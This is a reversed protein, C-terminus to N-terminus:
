RVPETPHSQRVSREHWLGSIRGAAVSTRRVYKMLSRPSPQGNPRLLAAGHPVRGDHGDPVGHRKLVQSMGVGYLYHQRLLAALGSRHRYHVVADPVWRLAIGARSLSWSFAIDECRVLSEDFGGAREFADRTVAMNASVLYPVGLFSPLEGPTAPPRWKAQKPICFRAESLMGGAAHGADVVRVLNELWAPAVEDDADCFAIVPATSAAAGSNRAFAASRKASADVIRVRQDSAMAVTEAVFDVVARDASNVAVIVEFDVVTEQGLVADLQAVLHGDVGGLPIVVVVDPAASTM